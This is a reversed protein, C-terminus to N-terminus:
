KLPKIGRSVSEWGRNEPETILELALEVSHSLSPFTM